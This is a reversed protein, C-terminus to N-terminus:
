GQSDLKSLKFVLVLPIDTLQASRGSNWSRPLKGTPEALADIRWGTKHFMDVYWHIPRHYRNTPVSLGAMPVSARRSNQYQRVVLSPPRGFLRDLLSRRLQGTPYAFAPHPLSLILYGSPKTVRYLERLMQDPDSLAHIVMLSIVQDFEYDAFPLPELLNQVRFDRNPFNQEARAVLVSSGDIGTVVAGSEALHNVMYGNGCGADLIRQGSVAGLYEYIVPDLITRRFGDGVTGQVINYQEAAADWRDLDNDVEGAAPPHFLLVNNTVRIRDPYRKTLPNNEIKKVQINRLSRELWDGVRGRLLWEGFERTYRSLALSRSKRRRPTEVPCNYEGMWQNAQQYREYTQTIDALPVLRSFVEAHYRNKPEILLHDTTQYRNLCIRGRILHKHRRLGLLHVLTTAFFRVTYMRDPASVILFDIDSELRAEDRALSGNLGVLRVFPLAAILISVREARRRYLAIFPSSM